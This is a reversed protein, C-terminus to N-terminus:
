SSYYSSLYINGTGASGNLYFQTQAGIFRQQEIGRNTCVDLLLFSGAPLIEHDNTGDWSITVDSTSESTFKLVVAPYLLPTGIPDYSGDLTSSDFVRLVEPYLRISISSM